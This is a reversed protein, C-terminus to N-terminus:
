NNFNQYKEIKEGICTFIKTYYTHDRLEFYNYGLGLLTRNGETYIKDSHALLVLYTITGAEM